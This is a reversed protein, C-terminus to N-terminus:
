KKSKVVKKKRRRKKPIKSRTKLTNNVYNLDVQDEAKTPTGLYLDKEIQAALGLMALESETKPQTKEKQSKLIKTRILDAIIVFALFGLVALVAYLVVENKDM